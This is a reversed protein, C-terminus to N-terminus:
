FSAESSGQNCTSLSYGTTHNKYSPWLPTRKYYSDQFASGRSQITHLSITWKIQLYLSVIPEEVLTKCAGQHVGRWLTSELPWAEEQQIRTGVIHGYRRDQLIQEFCKNFCFCGSITQLNHHCERAM